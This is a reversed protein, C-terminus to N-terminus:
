GIGLLQFLFPKPFPLHLLRDFVGWVALAVTVTIPIILKWSERSRWLYAAVFLPLGVYFGIAWLTLVLGAVWFFQEIAKRRGEASKEHDTVVFDSNGAGDDVKDVSVTGRRVGIQEIIERFLQLLVVVLGISGLTTPFLSAQLNKGAVEYIVYAFVGILILTVLSKKPILAM